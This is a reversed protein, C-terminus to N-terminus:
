KVPFSVTDDPLTPSTVVREFRLKESSTPVEARYLGSQFTGVWISGDRSELVDYVEINHLYHDSDGIPLGNEDLSLVTLGRSTSLFLRGLSSKVVNSIFDSALSTPSDANVRVIRQGDKSLIFLGNGYTSVAVSEPGLQIIRSIFELSRDNPHVQVVTGTAFNLRRLGFSFGGFWLSNADSYLSMVSAEPIGADPFLDSLPQIINSEPDYMSLGGMSGVFIKGDASQTLATTIGKATMQDLGFSEFTSSSIVSVENVSLALHRDPGLQEMQMFVRKEQSAGFPPFVRSLSDADVSFLGAVTSVWLEDTPSVHIFWITDSKPDDGLEQDPPAIKHISLDSPDLKYVGREETAIFLNGSTSVQVQNFRVNHNDGLLEKVSISECSQSGLRCELLIGSGSLLWIRGEKDEVASALFSSEGFYKSSEITKKHAGTASNLAVLNGNTLKLWVTSSSSTFISFVRGQVTDDELAIQNRSFVRASPEYVQVRNSGDVFWIRGPPSEALVTKSTNVSEAREADAADYIRQLQYGDFRYVRKGIPIWLFGKTDLLVQGPVSIPLLDSVPLRRVEYTGSASVQAPASTVALLLTLLAAKFLFVSAM